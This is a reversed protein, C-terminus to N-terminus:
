RRVKTPVGRAWGVGRSRGRGAAMEAPSRREASRARSCPRPRRALARLADAPDSRGAPRGRKVGTGPARQSARGPPEPESSRGLSSLLGAHSGSHRSKELSASAPPPHASTPPSSAPAPSCAPSPLSPSSFASLLRWFPSPSPILDRPAPPPVALLSLCESMIDSHPTLTM